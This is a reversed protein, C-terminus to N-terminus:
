VSRQGRGSGTSGTRTSTGGSTDSGSTGTGDDISDNIKDMDVNVGHMQVDMGEATVHVSTIDMGPPSKTESEENLSSEVDKTFSPPLDVGFIQANDLQFRMKGQETVPKMSMTALGGAVEFDLVQREPNASIDTIQLMSDKPTQALMMESPISFYMTLDGVTLSEGRTTANRAELRVKPTGHVVPKSKDNDQYTIDLTSPITLNFQQISGQLLGIAVSSAGFSVEPKGPVEADIQQRIAYRLGFEALAFLLALVLLVALLIKWLTGGRTRRPPPYSAPTHIYPNSM